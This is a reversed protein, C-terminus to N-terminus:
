LFVTISYPFSAFLLLSKPDGQRVQLCRAPHKGHHPEFGTKAQRALYTESIMIPSDFCHSFRLAYGLNLVLPFVFSSSSHFPFIPFSFSFLTLFSSTSFSPHSSFCFGSFFCRLSELHIDFHEQTIWFSKILHVYWFLYLTQHLHDYNHLYKTVPSTRPNEGSPGLYWHIRRGSWRLVSRAKHPVLTGLYIKKPCLM